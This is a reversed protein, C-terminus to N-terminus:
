LAYIIVNVKDTNEKIIKEIKDWNGGALGAGILPMAITKGKYDFNLKRLIQTFGFYEFHDIGRPLYKKQTYANIIVKGDVEAKTFRGVKSVDGKITQQDALYAEPFLEKVQKAIGSGMNCLCNCGHVLVDWNEMDKFLDGQKYTIM